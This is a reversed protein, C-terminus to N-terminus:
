IGNQFISSEEMKFKRQPSFIDTRLQTVKDGEILVVNLVYNYDSTHYIRLTLVKGDIRKFWMQELQIDNPSSGLELNELEIPSDDQYDNIYFKANLHQTSRYDSSEFVSKIMYIPIGMNAFDIKYYQNYEDSLPFHIDEEEDGYFVYGGSGTGKELYEDSTIVEKISDIYSFVKSYM